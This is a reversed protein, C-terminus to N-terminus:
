CYCTHRYINRPFTLVSNNSHASPNRLLINPSPHYGKSQQSSSSRRHKCASNGRTSVVGESSPTSHFCLKQKRWLWVPINALCKYETLALLSTTGWMNDASRFIPLLNEVPLVPKTCVIRCLDSEIEVESINQKYMNQSAQPPKTQSSSVAAM